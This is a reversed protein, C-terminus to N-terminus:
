KADMNDKIMQAVGMCTEVSYGEGDPEYEETFVMSVVWAIQKVSDTESIREAILKSETDFENEPALPLLNNPNWEDIAKKVYNFM